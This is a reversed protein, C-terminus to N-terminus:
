YTEHKHPGMAWVAQFTLLNQNGTLESHRHEGQLRLFVFESEWWTLAPILAWQTDQAGRASQSYDYRAGVIWRQSTRAQLDLFAGYRNTTVDAESAHLRYGEARFTV